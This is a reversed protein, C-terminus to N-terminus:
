AIGRPPPATREQQRQHDRLHVLLRTIRESPSVDEPVRVNALLLLSAALACPEAAPLVAALDDASLPLAAGMLKLLDSEIRRKLLLEIKNEDAADVVRRWSDLHRARFKPTEIGEYGLRRCADDVYGDFIHAAWDRKLRRQLEDILPPGNDNTALYDCATLALGLSDGLEALLRSSCAEWQAAAQPSGSGCAGLLWAEAVALTKRDHVADLSLSHAVWTRLAAVHRLATKRPAIAPISDIFRLVARGKEQHLAYAWIVLRLFSLEGHSGDPRPLTIEGICDSGAITDLRRRLQLLLNDVQLFNM